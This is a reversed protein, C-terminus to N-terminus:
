EGTFIVLTKGNHQGARNTATCTYVNDTKNLIRVPLSLHRSRKYALVEGTPASWQVVPVPWGKVVDCKIETSEALNGAMEGVKIELM